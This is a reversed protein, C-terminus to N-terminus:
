LSGSTPRVAVRIAKTAIMHEFAADVQDLAFEGAVQAAFPFHDHHAALFDVATALDAPAYNHIGTIHWMRRVVQEVDLPITGIPKVAGVLVYRGGTRLLSLGLPLADAAGSMEFAIDVGRGSTLQEIQQRLEDPQHQVDFTQTAGFQSATALRPADVDTVIINAAGAVNAMASATLGLLGAGQILVSKDGCGGASQIAAAVTAIACNATSAVADPINAPVRFIATGPALHCMEALGGSLPHRGCCSEHGYKFLRECKQPLEHQCFFCTGCSAAVSWSIRDGIELPTDRWDRRSHTPGFAVIEGLMEHGLISPTPGHRKGLYTHLDSGCLTCCVVRVLIEDDALEPLPFNRSDIPLGPTVFVASRAEHNDSGATV